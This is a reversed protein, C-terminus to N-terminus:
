QGHGLTPQHPPRGSGQKHALAEALHPNDHSRLSLDSLKQLLTKLTTARSLEAGPPLPAGGISRFSSVAPALSSTSLSQYMTTDDTMFSDAANAKLMEAATEIVGGCAVLADSAIHHPAQTAEM